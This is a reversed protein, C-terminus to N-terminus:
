CDVLPNDQYGSAETSSASKAFVLAKFDQSLSSSSSPNTLNTADRDYLPKTLITDKKKRGSVHVAELSLSIAVIEKVWTIRIGGQSRSM